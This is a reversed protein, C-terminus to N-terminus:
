KYVENQTKITIFNSKRIVSHVPDGTIINDSGIVEAMRECIQYTGGQLYLASRQM